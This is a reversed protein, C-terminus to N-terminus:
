SEFNRITALIFFILAIGQFINRIITTKYWTRARKLLDPTAPADMPIKSFYMIERVFYAATLVIAILFLATGVLMLTRVGKQTWNTILAGILAVLFLFQLPIWFRSAGKAQQRIIDFSAPPNAFWKPINVIRERIGAFFIVALLFTASTVLVTDITPNM